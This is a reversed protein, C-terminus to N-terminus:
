LDCGTVDAAFLLRTQSVVNTNYVCGALGPDAHIPLAARRKASKPLATMSWTPRQLLCPLARSM